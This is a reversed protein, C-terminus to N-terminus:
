GSYRVKMGPLPQDIPSICYIEGDTLGSQVYAFQEDTRVVDVEKPYIEDEGNVVWVSQNDDVAHRPLKFLNGANIGEIRAEVFTGLRLPEVGGNELDFPDEVQAVAYLVRSNRDIIGETRVVKANWTRVREGDTSTLMVPLPKSEFSTPLDVYNLDTLTLPLRIEAYDVAVARALQSGTNVFQGVDALKEVIMGDYPATIETRVLDEWAKELAVEALELEAIAEALQPGRLTLPSPSEIDNSLRKLKEFDQLAFEALAKETDVQTQAKALNAQAQKLSTQYNRPDIRVLRDGRDFFGGVVYREAVETIQGTVESVLTTQTRPTVVGQSKVSYQVPEKTATEISVLITPMPAPTRVPTPRMRLLQYAVAICVIIITIPLLIM